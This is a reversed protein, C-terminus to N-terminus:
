EVWGQDNAEEDTVEEFNDVDVAVVEHPYGSQQIVRDLGSDILSSAQEAEEHDSVELVINTKVKILM